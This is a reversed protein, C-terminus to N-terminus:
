LLEESASTPILDDGRARVCDLGLQPADTFIACAPKKGLHVATAHEEQVPGNELHKLLRQWLRTQSEGM